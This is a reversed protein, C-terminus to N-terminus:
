RSSGWGGNPWLEVWRPGESYSEADEDREFSSIIRRVVDEDQRTVQTIEVVGLGRRYALYMALKREAGADELVETLERYRRELRERASGVASSTGTVM